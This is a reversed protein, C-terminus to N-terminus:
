RYKIYRNYISAITDITDKTDIWRYRQSDEIFHSLLRSFPSLLFTELLSNLLERCEAWAPSSHFSEWKERMGAVFRAVTLPRTKVELYIRRIVMSYHSCADRSPPQQSVSFSDGLLQSIYCVHLRGIPTRCPSLAALWLEVWKKTHDVPGKSMKKPRGSPFNNRLKRGM